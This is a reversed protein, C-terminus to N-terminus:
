SILKTLLSVTNLDTEFMSMLISFLNIRFEPYHECVISKIKEEYEKLMDRKTSWFIAWDKKTKAECSESKLWTSLELVLEELLDEMKPKDKFNVLRTLLRSYKPDERLDKAIQIYKKSNPKHAIYYFDYKLKIPTRNGNESLYIVFGEPEKSEDGELLLRYTDDYFRWLDEWSDFTHIPSSVPFDDTPLHYSKRENDFVTLGLYPCWDRGYDVTLLKNPIKEIAEFHFTVCQDLMNKERLFLGTHKIFDTIGGYTGGIARYIGTKVPDKAFVRGKSGIIFIGLETYICVDSGKINDELLRFVPSQPSIYLFNFLSGDYKYTLQIECSRKEVLPVVRQCEISCKELTDHLYPLCLFDSEVRNFDPFVPLSGRLLHYEGLLKDLIVSEGRYDRTPGNFVQFGDKYTFTLVKIKENEFEVHTQIVGDPFQGKVGDEGFQNILHLLPVQTPTPPLVTTDLFRRAITLLEEVSGSGYDLAYNDRKGTEFNVDPYVVTDSIKSSVTYVGLKFCNLIDGRVEESLADFTNIMTHYYMSQTTDIIIVRNEQDELTCELLRQWEKQVLIKAGETQSIFDMTNGDTCGLTKAVTDYCTDRNVYSVGYSGLADKLVASVERRTARDIGVPFLAIRRNNIGRKHCYDSVSLEQSKWHELLSLSHELCSEERNVNDAVRSVSDAVFLMTIMRYCLDKEEPTYLCLDPLFPNVSHTDCQHSFCCMHNNVAWLLATRYESPIKHLLYQQVLATGVQSHGKYLIRKRQVSRAFPKGIDHLYGCFFAVDEPIGFCSSLSKCKMGCMYLHDLLGERHYKTSVHNEHEHIIMDEFEKPLGLTKLVSLGDTM